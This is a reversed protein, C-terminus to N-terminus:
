RHTRSLPRNWPPPGASTALLPQYRKLDGSLRPLPSQIHQMIVKIATDGRYPREGTLLEYLVTGLGYVDVRQDLPVRGRGDAAALLPAHARSGRSHLGFRRLHGRVHPGDGPRLHERGRLEPQAGDRDSHYHVVINFGDAALRNAIARGIGKSAGTVLATSKFLPDSM